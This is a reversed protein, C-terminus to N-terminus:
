VPAPQLKMQFLCSQWLWECASSCEERREGREERREGRREGGGGGREEGGEGKRKEGEFRCAYTVILIWEM